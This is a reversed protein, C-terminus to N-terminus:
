NPAKPRKPFYLCCNEPCIDHNPGYQGVALRPANPDIRERILEGIMRMFRPHTGVTQARIMRIGLQSCLEAAEVDLDFMVELHDSLFGIPVLVLQKPRESQHLQQIADGVDPELWPQSPPGSRSQYVLRYKSHQLSESVLRCSESLQRVYDSNDSMSIPISHATFYLWTNARDAEPIQELAAQVRDAQAQIFGPHNYFVRIKDVVPATEGCAARAAQIDERYQRCGSYCSYTSTVWALAKRVGDAQMQRMTDVLMPHWNRNGWYIPLSLGSSGLEQRLAAILDRIQDNIPSIGGFHYYHEAVELMRERPVPKGRLVNELFPMVDERREPGGFSVVLIADYQDSM